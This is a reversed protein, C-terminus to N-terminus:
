SRSLVRAAERTSRRKSPAFPSPAPYEGRGSGRSIPWARPQRAPSGTGRLAALTAWGQQWWPQRAPSGRLAAPHCRQQRAPSGPHCRLAALIAACPQRSDACPQGAPLGAAVCPQRPPLAPSGAPCGQFRAPCGQQWGRWETTAADCKCCRNRRYYPFTRALYTNESPM